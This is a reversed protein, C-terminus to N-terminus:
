RPQPAEVEFQVQFWTAHSRAWPLRTPTSGSSSGLTLRRLDESDLDEIRTGPGGRDRADLGEALNRLALDYAVGPLAPNRAQLEVLSDMWRELHPEPGRCSFVLLGENSSGADVECVLLRHSGAELLHGWPGSPVPDASPPSVAPDEEEVFGPDADQPGLSSTVRPRHPYLYIADQAEGPVVFKSLTYLHTPDSAHVELGLSEEAGIREHEHELLRAPDEGGVEFGLAVLTPPTWDAAWMVQALGLLALFAVSTLVGAYLRPSRRSRARLARLPRHLLGRRAALPVETGGLFRELDERLARASGYRDELREELARLVIAELSKPITSRHRRPDLFDGTEIRRLLPTLEDEPFTRELTLLEYLMLGLQYVDTRPDSGVRLTKAQEPALYAASGYLGQTVTGSPSDLRGALGFDLVVPFGGGRLMVNSPKLDRHVIGEAHAAELTRALEAVIRAVALDWSESGLLSRQGVPLAHGIAEGLVAADTPFRGERRRWADAHNVVAQVTTGQVFEMAIFALEDDQGVEHVAVIGPHQLAALSRSEREFLLEKEPDGIAIPNLVKIAVRRELVEDLAVFVRGMGGSGLEGEILYRDAFRSGERIQRPLLHQAGLAGDILTRLEEREAPDAVGDLLEELDLAGETGERAMYEVALRDM